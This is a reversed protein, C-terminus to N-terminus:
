ADVLDNPRVDVVQDAISVDSANTYQTPPMVM